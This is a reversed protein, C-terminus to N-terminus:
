SYDRSPHAVERSQQSSGRKMGNNNPQLSSERSQLLAQASHRRTERFVPPTSPVPCSVRRGEETMDVDNNNRVTTRTTSSESHRRSSSPCMERKQEETQPYSSTLHDYYTYQTPPLNSGSSVEDELDEGKTQLM